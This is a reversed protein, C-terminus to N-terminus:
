SISVTITEGPKGNEEIGKLLQKAINSSSTAGAITDINSSNGAKVINENLAPIWESVSIPMPYAEDSQESKKEGTDLSLADYQASVIKGDKYTVTLMDQWGHGNEAAYTEDVIATYTGDAMTKVDDKKCSFLSLSLVLVLAFVITKRM